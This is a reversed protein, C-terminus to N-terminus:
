IHGYKQKQLLIKFTQAYRYDLKNLKKIDGSYLYKEAAFSSQPVASLLFVSTIFGTLLRKM